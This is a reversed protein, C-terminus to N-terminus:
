SYLRYIYRIALVSAFKVKPTSWEDPTMITVYSTIGAIRTRLIIWSLIKSMTSHTVTPMAETIDYFLFISSYVISVMLVSLLPPM